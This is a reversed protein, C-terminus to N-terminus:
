FRVVVNHIRVMHIQKCVLCYGGAIIMKLSNQNQVTKSPKVNPRQRWFHQLQRFLCYPPKLRWDGSLSGNLWWHSYFRHLLRFCWLVNGPTSKILVLDDSIGKVLSLKKDRPLVDGKKRLSRREEMWLFFFSTAIGTRNQLKSKFM